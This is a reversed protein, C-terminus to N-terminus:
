KNERLTLVMFKNLFSLEFESNPKPVKPMSSKQTNSVSGGLPVASLRASSLWEETNAPDGVRLCEYAQHRYNITKVFAYLKLELM